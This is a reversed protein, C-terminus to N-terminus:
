IVDLDIQLCYKISDIIDEVIDDLDDNNVFTMVPKYNKFIKKDDKDRRKIEQVCQNDSRQAIREFRKKDEVEILIDVVEKGKNKLLQISRPPLVAIYHKEDNLHPLGYSWVENTAVNFHEKTLMHMSRFKANTIFNYDVGNKEGPRIPRTTYQIVMEIGTKESLKKAITSKGSGSLGSIVFIM